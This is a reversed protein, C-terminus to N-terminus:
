SIKIRQASILHALDVREPTIPADQMAMDRPLPQFLELVHKLRETETEAATAPAVVVLLAIGAFCLHLKM